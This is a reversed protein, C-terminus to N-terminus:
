LTLQFRHERVLRGDRHVTYRATYVGPAFRGTTNRKGAFLLQQARDVKLQPGDTAALAASGPGTVVLRQVDGAKLGIARIYALLAPSAANPGPIAGAEVADATVPAAAFGANIVEPSRYTLANAAAPSWLGAGGAGCIGSATPAFPDVAKGGSRVTLHLHPFAAMGSQGVRGLPAGVAVARGPKVRLSGRAMHCYQTQHGGPHDIVVGNGCETGAARSAAVGSGDHDPAGDRVDRVTGAAAARVEVGALMAARSPVRFDTGDHGQYAKPGCRYDRAAPGPDHDVYQQIFCSRGPQCAVPLELRLATSQGTTSSGAALAGFTALAFLATRTM